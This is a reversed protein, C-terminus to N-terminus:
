CVRDVTMRQRSTNGVGAGVLTMLIPVEDMRSMCHKEEDVGTRKDLVCM